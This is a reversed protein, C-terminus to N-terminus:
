LYPSIIDSNFTKGVTGLKFAEVNLFNFFM